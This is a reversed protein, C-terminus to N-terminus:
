VYRPVWGEAQYWRLVDAWAEDFSNFRPTWGLARLKSADVVMDDYLLPISERDLRPRLAPKLGHRTTILGWLLVALRDATRYTRDRALADGFWQLIRKSPRLTSSRTVGYADLTISVRDGLSLVDGDSVNFVHGFADERGILFVLARAVDEAHVMTALPGGGWHPVRPFLAKLMPAAVLLSAAFHRGRRGYLPAPRLITWKCRQDQSRLYLEAAFKSQTYAGRPALPAEENLPVPGAPAAYLSATSVHLFHSVGARVSAEYLLSVATANVATLAQPSADVSLEAATHIVADCGRVLEACADPSRLDAIQVRGRVPAAVGHRRRDTAIVEYGAADALAVVYRGITGGAGTVLVSKRREAEAM